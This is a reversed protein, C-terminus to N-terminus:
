PNGVKYPKKYIPVKKAYKKKFFPKKKYNNYVM